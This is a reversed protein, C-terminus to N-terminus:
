GGTKKVLEVARQRELKASDNGPDLELVRDYLPVAAKPNQNAMEQRAQRLRSAILTSRVTSARAAAGPHDLAAAAQFEEYATDLRGAKEAAEGRKFALEGM